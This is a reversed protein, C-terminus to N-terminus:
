SMEATKLLEVIMHILTIKLLFSPKNSSFLTFDHESKSKLGELPLECPKGNPLIITSDRRHGYPCLLLRASVRPLTCFLTNSRSLYVTCVFVQTPAGLHQEKPASTNRVQFSKPFIAADWVALSQHTPTQRQQEVSPHM